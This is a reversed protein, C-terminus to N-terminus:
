QNDQPYLLDIAKVEGKTYEEIKKALKPSVGYGHRIIHYLHSRSVNLNKAFTKIPIDHKFSYIKLIHKNM